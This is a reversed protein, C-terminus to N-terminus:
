VPRGMERLEAEWGPTDKKIRAGLENYRRFLDPGIVELRPDVYVKREPGHYYEFLAAHGNHFSLFRSPMGAKGALKAAAHAFWLWGGGVGITRGEGTIRFFQGTGVWLLLVAVAALAVPPAPIAWRSQVALGLKDRRHRIAAAWEAFNWATVAGVVAAFQHSNR